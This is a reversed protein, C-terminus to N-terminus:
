NKDTTITVHRLENKIDDKPKEYQQQQHQQQQIVTKIAAM